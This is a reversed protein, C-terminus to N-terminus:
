YFRNITVADSSDIYEILLLLVMLILLRNITVDGNSEIYDILLLLLM